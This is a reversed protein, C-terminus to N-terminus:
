LFAPARQVPGVPVLADRNVAGHREVVHLSDAAARGAHVRDLLGLKAGDGPQADQVQLAMEAM